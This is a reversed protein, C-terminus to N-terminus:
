SPRRLTSWICCAQELRLAKASTIGKAQVVRGWIDECSVLEAVEMQQESTVEESLGERIVNNLTVYVCLINYCEANLDEFYWDSDVTIKNM